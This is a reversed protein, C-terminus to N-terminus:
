ARGLYGCAAADDKGRNGIFVINHVVPGDGLATGRDCLFIGVSGTVGRVGKGQFVDPPVGGNLHPKRLLAVRQLDLELRAILLVFGGGARDDGGGLGLRVPGRSHYGAAACDCLTGAQVEGDAAQRGAGRHLLPHVRVAGDHGAALGSIRDVIHLGGHIQCGHDCLAAFHHSRQGEGHRILLSLRDFVKLVLQGGDGAACRQGAPRPVGRAGRHGEGIGLGILILHDPPRQLFSVSRSLTNGGPPAGQGILQFVTQEMVRSDMHHYLFLGEHCHVSCRVAADLHVVGQVADGDLRLVAIDVM